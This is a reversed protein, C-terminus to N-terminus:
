QNSIWFFVTVLFLTILVVAAVADVKGDSDREQDRDIADSM